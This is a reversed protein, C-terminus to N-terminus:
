GTEAEAPPPGRKRKRRGYFALIALPVVFAFTGLFIPRSRTTEIMQAASDYFWASVVVAFVALPTTLVDANVRPVILGILRCLFYITVGSKVFATPMWAAAIAMDLRDLFDTVRLQRILEYPPDWFMTTLDPGFLVLEGIILIVNSALGVLFGPAIDRMRLSQDRLLMPIILLEAFHGFAYAGAELIGAPREFFPALFEMRTQGQLLIPLAAVQSIFLAVFLINARATAALGAKAFLVATFAGTAAIIIPPTNPLLYINVLETLFRLDHALIAFFVLAVLALLARGIWPRRAVFTEPLTGEPYKRHVVGIIWLPPIIAVGAVIYGMWADQRAAEIMPVPPHKIAVAVMFLTTLANLQLKSLTQM